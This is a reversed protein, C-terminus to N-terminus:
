PFPSHDHPTTSHDHSHDHFLPTTLPLPIHMLESVLVLREQYVGVFDLAHGLFQYTLSDLLSCMLQLSLKWLGEWQMSPPPTVDCSWSM